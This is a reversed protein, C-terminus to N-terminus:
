VDETIVEDNITWQVQAPPTAMVICKLVCKNSTFYGDGLPLLFYPAQGDISGVFYDEKKTQEDIEAQIDVSEVNKGGEKLSLKTEMQSPSNLVAEVEASESERDCIVRTGVLKHVLVDDAIKILLNYSQFKDEFLGLISDTM